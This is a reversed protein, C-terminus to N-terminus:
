TTTYRRDTRRDTQRDTVNTCETSVLLCTKMKKVMPYLWVYMRSKRLTIAIYM